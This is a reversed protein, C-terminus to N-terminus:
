GPIQRPLVNVGKLLPLYTGRGIFQTVRSPDYIQINHESVLTSPDHKRINNPPYAYRLESPKPVYSFLPGRIDGHIQILGSKAGMQDMGGTRLAPKTNRSVEIFHKVRNEFIRTFLKLPNM